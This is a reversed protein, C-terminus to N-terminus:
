NNMTNDIQERTFSQLHAPRNAHDGAAMTLPDTVLGDWAVDLSNTVIGVAAGIRGGKKGTGFVLDKTSGLVNKVDSRTQGWPGAMAPELPRGTILAGAGTVLKNSIRSVQAAVGLTHDVASNNNVRNMEGDQWIQGYSGEWRNAILKKEGFTHANRIKMPNM